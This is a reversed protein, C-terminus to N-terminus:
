KNKSMGLFNCLLNTSRLNCKKCPSLDHMVYTITIHWATIIIHEQNWLHHAIYITVEAYPDFVSRIGRKLNMSFDNELDKCFNIKSIFNSKM